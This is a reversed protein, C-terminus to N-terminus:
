GDREGEALVPDDYICHDGSWHTLGHSCKEGPAHYGHRRLAAELSAVRARCEGYSRTQRDLKLVLDVAFRFLPQDIRALASGGEEIVVRQAKMRDYETAHYGELERARAEAKICAQQVDLLQSALADREARLATLDASPVSVWGPTTQGVKVNDDSM